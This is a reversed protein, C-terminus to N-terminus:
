RQLQKVSKTFSFPSFGLFCVFLFLGFIFVVVIIVRLLLSGEELFM